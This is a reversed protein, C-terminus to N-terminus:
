TAGPSRRVDTAMSCIASAILGPAAFTIPSIGRRGLRLSSRWYSRAQTRDRPPTPADHLIITPTLLLVHARGDTFFADGGANRGRHPGTVVVFGVDRDGAGRLQADILERERDVDPDIRHTLLYPKLVIEIGEDYSCTAAWVPTRPDLGLSTRWIRIHHRHRISGSPTSAREFTFDQPQANFYAPTAPGHPDPADRIVAMLERTLGTASPTDALSWGAREFSSRLQQADGVFLFSVPEMPGGILDESSQRLAQPYRGLQDLGISASMPPLQPRAEPEIRATAFIAGAAVALVSFGAVAMRTTLTLQEDLDPLLHEFPPYKFLTIVIALLAAGLDLSAITDFPWHVGLYVRSFPVLLILVLLALALLLRWWRERVDRALLYAVFGYIVTAALTHGSPFSPGLHLSVADPPRPRRILYKLGIAAIGQLLAASGFAAAERRRGFTALLVILAIVLPIIFTPSALRTIASYRRHLDESQFLRLTNHMRVDAGEVRPDTLVARVLHVFLFAFLATAALGILLRLWSREDHEFHRRM